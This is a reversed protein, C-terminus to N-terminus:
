RGRPGGAPASPAPRSLRNAARAAHHLGTQMSSQLSGHAPPQRHSARLNAIVSGGSSAETHWQRPQWRILALAKEVVSVIGSLPNATVAPSVAIPPKCPSSMRWSRFLTTYPFLTSPPPPRVMLSRLAAVLHRHLLLLL